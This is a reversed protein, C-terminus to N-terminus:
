HQQRFLHWAGCKPFRIGPHHHSADDGDSGRPAQPPNHGPKRRKREAVIRKADETSPHRDKSVHTSGQFGGLVLRDGGIKEGVELGGRSPRQSLAHSVRKDVGV